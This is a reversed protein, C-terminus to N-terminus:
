AGNEFCLADHNGVQSADSDTYDVQIEDGAFLARLATVQAFTSKSVRYTWIM